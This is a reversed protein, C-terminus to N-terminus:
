QSEGIQGDGDDSPMLVSLEVNDIENKMLQSDPEQTETQSLANSLNVFSTFCVRYFTEDGGKELNPKTELQSVGDGDTPSDGEILQSEIEIPKTNLLEQTEHQKSSATLLDSIVHTELHKVMVHRHLTQLGCAGCVFVPKERHSMIHIQLSMVSNFFEFCEGCYCLGINSKDIEGKTHSDIHKLLLNRVRFTEGCIGCGFPKPARHFTSMHTEVCKRSAFEECCIGCMYGANGLVHVEEIHARLSRTKKVDFQLGCFHCALQSVLGAKENASVLALESSTLEDTEM